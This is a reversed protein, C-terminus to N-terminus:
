LTLYPLNLELLQEQYKDASKKMLSFTATKSFLCQWQFSRKLLYKVFVQKMLRKSVSQLGFDHPINAYLGVVDSIVLIAGESIKGPRKM